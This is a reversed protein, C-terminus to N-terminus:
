QALIYPISYSALGPSALPECCLVQSVSTDYDLLCFFCNHDLPGPYWILSFSGVGKCIGFILLGVLIVVPYPPLLFIVRILWSAQGTEGSEEEEGGRQLVGDWALRAWHFSTTITVKLWLTYLALSGPCSEGSTARFIYYKSAM